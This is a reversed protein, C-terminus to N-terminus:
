NLTHSHLTPHPVPGGLLTILPTPNVRILKPDTRDLTLQGQTELAYIHSRTCHLLQCAERLTPKHDLTIHDALPETLYRNLSHTTILTLRKSPHLKKLRLNYINRESMNLLRAAESVRHTRPYRHTIHAMDGSIRCVPCSSIVM